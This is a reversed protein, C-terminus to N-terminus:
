LLIYTLTPEANADRNTKTTENRITTENWITRRTKDNTTILTSYNTTTTKM